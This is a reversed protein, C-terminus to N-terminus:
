RRRGLARLVDRLREELNETDSKVASIARRVSNRGYGLSVLAEEVEMDTTMKETLTKSEPLKIKNQLELIIREATKRGIGSTRTLLETKKEIIAAMINPVTDVDLVGLATKPGIGTVANLIEFLKLAQEELFGYLELREERLYLFCFLKIQEKTDPLNQLTRENTFIKFGLGGPMPGIEVVLFSDGRSVLKGEITYLM